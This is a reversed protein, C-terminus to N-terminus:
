LPRRYSISMIDDASYAGVLRPHQDQLHEQAIHVLTFASLASLELGCPCRIAIRVAQSQEVAERREHEAVIGPYDPTLSRAQRRHGLRAPPQLGEGTVKASSRRTTDL